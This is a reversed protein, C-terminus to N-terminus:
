ILAAVKARAREIADKAEQGYSYISSPNGFSDTFYPLMAKM